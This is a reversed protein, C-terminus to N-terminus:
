PDALAAAKVPSSAMCCLDYYHRSYRSPLRGNVRFAEKHLITAKEWFTREPAVTLIHTAPTEFVQPYQQAAYSSVAADQTPTWAALVGIEMRVVPLIVTDDYIRPYAFCVTQPDAGDIYLLFDDSLLARFDNQLRPLFVEKLFVETRANAEKNFKDQKTRSRGGWPEDVTYGLLRWDLILDIDESFREILGFCKSLSTGGKFALYKAWPSIHFLYDLTWCVWFDKEVIGDSMGCKAATNRFLAEREGRPWQLAQNM